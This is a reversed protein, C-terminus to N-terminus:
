GIIEAERLKKIRAKTYGLQRMIEDTHQGFRQAWNRAKFPSKSLKIIPGIQKAQGLIPHPVKVIMGRAILHPDRIVEEPSYVPAVCTDKQRLIKLWEDRTKTLFTKKFYQLIEDRKEGEAYQHEIFDECGLLQCLNTYFWPEVSGVSIYKGDKTQYVNYWPRQEEGTAITEGQESITEGILSPLLVPMMLGVIADTMSVDVYQGKGSKERAMLAALIGIVTSMGGAAFDALVTRPIVPTGDSGRTTGLLGGIAIYNIDHGVVDRYPGDQGYGSLSAYVIRPNVKKMSDCDVKLRKTAGPRFGEMIVDATKALKRFISLGEKTKLNIGMTKCNRWGPFIPTDPYMFALPGGRREPHAEYVKIVEAGLDGLITSCFTGPGQWAMDLVRIGDLATAM